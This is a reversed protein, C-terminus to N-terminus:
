MFPITPDSGPQRRDRAIARERQSDWEREASARRRRELIRKADPSETSKAKAQAAQATPAAPAARARQVAHAESKSESDVRKPSAPALSSAGRENAGRKAVGLLALSTTEAFTPMEAGLAPPMARSGRLSARPQSLAASQVGSLSKLAPTTEVSAPGVVSLAAARPASPLATNLKTVEGSTTKPSAATATVNAQLAQSSEAPTATSKASFPAGVRWSPLWSLAAVVGVATMSLGLAISAVRPVPATEQRLLRELRDHWESSDPRKHTERETARVLLRKLARPAVLRHIAEPPPPETRFRNFDFTLSNLPLGGYLCVYLTMAASFVDSRAEGPQGSAQEPPAFGPTGGRPILLQRDELRHALGFDLLKVEGAHTLFINSPKLDRHLVGARHAARLGRAVQCAIFLAERASMKGLRIRDQLTQGELYEFVLFPYGDHVGADFLTVINPPAPEIQAALLERVANADGEGERRIVKVAVTRGLKHDRAKYVVGFSGEGLQSDLEYRGDLLEGPAFRLPPRIRPSRALELLFSSDTALSSSM